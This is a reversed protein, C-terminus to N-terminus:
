DGPRECGGPILPLCLKLSTPGNERGSDALVVVLDGVDGFINPSHLSVEGLRLGVVVVVVVVELPPAVGTRRPSSSIASAPTSSPSIEEAAQGEASSPSSVSESGM